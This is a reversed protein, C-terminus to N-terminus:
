NRVGNFVEKFVKINSLFVPVGAALAELPAIGFGEYKSALIFFDFNRLVKVPDINQTQLEINSVKKGAILKRLYREEPGSGIIVLKYKSPNLNSFTNILFQHNKQPKLSGISVFTFVKQNSLFEKRENLFFKPEVYNYLISYSKIPNISKFYDDKVKNSVFIFHDTLHNTLGEAM